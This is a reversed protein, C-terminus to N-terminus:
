NVRIYEKVPFQVCDNEENIILCNPQLLFMRRDSSFTLVGEPKRFFDLIVPKLEAKPVYLVADDQGPLYFHMLADSYYYKFTDGDLNYWSTAVLTYGLTPGTESDRVISSIEFISDNKFEMIDVFWLDLSDVFERKEWTGILPSVPEENEACSILTAFLAVLAFPLYKKM